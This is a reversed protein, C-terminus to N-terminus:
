HVMTVSIDLTIALMCSVKEKKTNTHRADSSYLGQPLSADSSYLVVM